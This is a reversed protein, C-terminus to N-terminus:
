AEREERLRAIESQFRAMYSKVALEEEGILERPPEPILRIQIAKEKMVRLEMECQEKVQKTKEVKEMLKKIELMMHDCRGSTEGIWTLITDVQKQQHVAKQSILVQNAELDVEAFMKSLYNM